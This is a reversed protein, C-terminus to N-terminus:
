FSFSDKYKNKNYYYKKNPYWLFHDLKNRINEVQGLDNYKTIIRTILNHYEEYMSNKRFYDIESTTAEPLYKKTIAFAVVHDFISYDDKGYCIRNHYHCFKSAFSLLNIEKRQESSEESVASVNSRPYVVPQKSIKRVLSIDGRKIDEDLNKMALLRDALAFISFDKKHRQLQTSNTYDILLIKYLIVDRDTNEKHNLFFTKLERGNGKDGYTLDEKVEKEVFEINDPTLPPLLGLKSDSISAVNNQKNM